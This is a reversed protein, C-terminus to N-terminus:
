RRVATVEIYRGNKSAGLLNGEIKDSLEATV